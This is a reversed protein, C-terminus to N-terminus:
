NREAERFQFVKAIIQWRDDEKILSLFDTHHRGNLSCRLRVLATNEGALDISEIEGNRQEGLSLPSQRAAVVPLYEDMSRILAPEEDATAYVARPHMVRSLLETDCLHLADLYDQILEEIAVPIM